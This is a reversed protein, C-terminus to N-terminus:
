RMKHLKARIETGTTTLNHKVSVEGKKDRFKAGIIKGKMGISGNVSLNKNLRRSASVFPGYRGLGLSVRNKGFKRSITTKM